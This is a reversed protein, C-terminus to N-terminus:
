REVQVILSTVTFVSCSCGFYILKLLFFRAILPLFVYLLLSSSLLFSCDFHANDRTGCSSLCYLIISNLQTQTSCCQHSPRDVRENRARDVCMANSLFGLCDTTRHLFVKAIASLHNSSKEKRQASQSYTHAISNTDTNSMFMSVCKEIFALAYLSQQM